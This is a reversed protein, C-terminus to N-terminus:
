VKVQEENVGSSDSYLLHYSKISLDKAIIQKFEALLLGEKETLQTSKFAAVLKLIAQEEMSIKVVAKSFDYNITCHDM